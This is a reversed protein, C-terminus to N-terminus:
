LVVFQVVCGSQFVCYWVVVKSCVIGCLWKPVLLVVCSSQSECSWLSFWVVVKSCVIGCLWKPVCLVVCPVCGSQFVCYWVVM